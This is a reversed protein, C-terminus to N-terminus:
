LLPCLQLLRSVSIYASGLLTIFPQTLATTDPTPHPTHHSSLTTHASLSIHCTQHSFTLSYCCCCEIGSLGVAVKLPCDARSSPHVSAHILATQIVCGFSGTSM